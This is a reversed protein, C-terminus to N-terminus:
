KKSKRILDNIEEDSMVSKNKYNFIEKKTMLSPDYKYKYEPLEFKKVETLIKIKGINIKEKSRRCHFFVDGSKLITLFPNENEHYQGCVKCTYAREKRLIVINKERRNIIHNNDFESLIKKVQDIDFDHDTEDITIKKEVISPLILCDSIEAVLSKRLIELNKLEEEVNINVTYEKGKFTFTQNFIKIRDSDPKHSWVIRLSQSNNYVGNDLYKCKYKKMVLDYVTRCEENSLHCYNDIIIHYSKKEPGHSTFVLIDKELNLSIDFKEQFVLIIAELVQDFIKQHNNLDSPEKIDLDFHSKQCYKGLIMEHYTKDPVTIYHKYFDIYNEFLTYKRTKQGTKNLTENCILTKRYLDKHVNMLSRGEGEVFRDFWNM